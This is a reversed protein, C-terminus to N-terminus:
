YGSGARPTRGGRGIPEWQWSSRCLTITDMGISGPVELGQLIKGRIAKLWRWKLLATQLREHKVTANKRLTNIQTLHFKTRISCMINLLQGVKRKDCQIQINIWNGPTHEIKLVHNRQCCTYEASGCDLIWADSPLMSFPAAESSKM